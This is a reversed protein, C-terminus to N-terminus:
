LPNKKIKSNSRPYKQKTPKLKKIKIITRQSNEHPLNFSKITKVECDLLKIARESEIIERSIDAKMPIFFGGTKLLPICTELLINLHAVARATVLDFVERNEIAYDESRATIVEIDSLNLQTIVEKLFTTRKNLSDILTVKLNPFIIKIVLGPFGAGTGVDCLNEYNNFDIVKILTASDFFHKLYVQNLETIGTLNMKKNWEILLEYYTKFQNLQHETIKIDIKEFEIKFENETM